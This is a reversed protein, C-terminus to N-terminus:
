PMPFSKHVLSQEVMPAGFSRTQQTQSTRPVCCLVHHASHRPQVTQGGRASHPLVRVPGHEAMNLEQLPSWLRCMPAMLVEDPKEARLRQLFRTRHQPLHFDWGTQLSFIETQVHPYKNLHKTTRGQGTFVEWVVRVKTKSTITKATKLTQDEAQCVAEAQRVLKRPVHAHLRNTVMDDDDDEETGGFQRTTASSATQEPTSADNADM